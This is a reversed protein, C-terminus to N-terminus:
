ATSSDAESSPVDPRLRQDQVTGVPEDDDFIVYAGAKLNQFQGARLARYLVTLTIAAGVVLVALIVALPSYSM